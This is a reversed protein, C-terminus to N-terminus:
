VLNTFRFKRPRSPEHRRSGPTQAAPFAAQLEALEIDAVAGVAACGKSGMCAAGSSDPEGAAGTARGHAGLLGAGGALRTGSSAPELFPV